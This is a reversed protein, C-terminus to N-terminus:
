TKIVRLKNLVFGYTKTIDDKQNMILHVLYLAMLIMTLWTLGIWVSIVLFVSLLVKPVWFQLIVKNEFGFSKKFGYYMVFPIDIAIFVLSYFRLIHVMSFVSGLAIAAIIALNTPIGIKMLINEKNYLIFINGTTSNLTQTLILIGIYPLLDAVQIWNSSWLLVVLPKAFFILLICVPFNLLSILGLINLYEKNVDGGQDKHDKLSPLLVKGFLNTIVGLALNLLKYGRDYIGLSQAGFVKGVILNDSNRAWYNLMNFGTLNGIISRAKRFGVVLYKRKMIRFKLGTMRYFIIIRVINGAIGPLILAWYSFGLFALLIMFGIEILTCILDIMGLSNFKLEKSLLGFPVTILSRLIFSSSMVITPLVLAPNKYFVSIPYALAVVVITLILGIFVALYHIASQFLKKYDSRIIIFSLGADSFQSIFGTFVAILAVFGYESPLLLRSLVISSLFSLVQTSYSYGGLIIVNKFLTKRFSM